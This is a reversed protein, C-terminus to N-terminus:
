AKKYKSWIDEGTSVEHPKDLPFRYFGPIVGSQVATDTGVNTQFQVPFVEGPEKKTHMYFVRVHTERVQLTRHLDFHLQDGKVFIRPSILSLVSLAAGGRRASWRLPTALGGDKMKRPPLPDDWNKGVLQFFGAHLSGDAFRFDGSVLVKSHPWLIEETIPEAWPSFSREDIEFESTAGNGVHRAIRWVPHAEFDHETLDEEQRIVVPIRPM